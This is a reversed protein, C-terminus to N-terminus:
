YQQRSNSHDGSIGIRANLDMRVYLEQDEDAFMESAKTNLQLDNPPSIQESVVPLAVRVKVVEAFCM